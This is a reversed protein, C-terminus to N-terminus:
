IIRSLQMQPQLKTFNPIDGMLDPGHTALASQLAELTEFNLKGIVAYAPPTGPAGGALGEEIDIRVLGEPTLRERVLPIHVNLYYELDFKAEETEPYLITLCIM